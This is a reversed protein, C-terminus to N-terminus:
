SAPRPDPPALARVAVSFDAASPAQLITKSGLAFPNFTAANPPKPRSYRPVEGPHASAPFHGLPVLVLSSRPSGSPPTHVHPYQCGRKLTSRPLALTELLVPRQTGADSPLAPLCGGSCAVTLRPCRANSTPDRSTQPPECVESEM